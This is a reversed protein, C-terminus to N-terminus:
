GDRQERRHRSTQLAVDGPSLATPHVKPANSPPLFAALGPHHKGPTGKLDDRAGGFVM